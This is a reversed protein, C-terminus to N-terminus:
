WGMATRFGDFAGAVSQGLLVVTSAIAAAILSAMIAYEVSTAGEEDFRVMGNGRLNPVHHGRSAGRGGRQLTQDPLSSSTALSM